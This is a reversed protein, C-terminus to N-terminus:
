ECDQRITKGLAGLRGAIEEVVLMNVPSVSLRELKEDTYGLRISQEVLHIVKSGFREKYTNVTQTLYDVERQASENWEKTKREEDWSDWGPIDRVYQKIPDYQRRASVFDLMEASTTEMKDAMELMQKKKSRPLVLLVGLLILAGSAIFGCITAIVPMTTVLKDLLFFFGALGLGIIIAALGERSM